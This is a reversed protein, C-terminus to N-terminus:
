SLLNNPQGFVNGFGLCRVDQVSPALDDGRAQNIQVHVDIVSHCRQANWCIGVANGFANRRNHIGSRGTRVSEWSEALIDDIHDIGPDKRQQVNRHDALRGQGPLVRVALQQVQPIRVRSQRNSGDLLVAVHDQTHLNAQRPVNGTVMIQLRQPQGLFRGIGDTQRHHHM